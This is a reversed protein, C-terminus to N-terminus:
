LKGKQKKLMKLIRLGEEVEKTARDNEPDVDLDHDVLRSRLPDPVGADESRNGSGQPRPDNHLRPENHQPATGLTKLADLLERASQYRKAPNKELLKCLMAAFVDSLTPVYSRPDTAAEKSHKVMVELASAGSFPPRGCVLHYFTAGLSYLDSRADAYKAGAIQEPPMYLPTGMGVGSHTAVFHPQDTGISLIKALGLDALKADGQASLLINDPKIDRHIINFSAAYDLANALGTIMALARQESFPGERKMLSTATGGPCFEMVIYRMGEFEACDYVQVVNPHRLRAAIRAEQVFRAQGVPDDNALMFKLVVGSDLGTHHALWAAGMGGQGLKKELRCSGVM